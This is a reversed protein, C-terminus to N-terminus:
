TDPVYLLSFLEHRIRNARLKRLAKIEIQRIRERTLNHKQGVQELTKETGDRLGYRDSLIERDRERLISLMKHVADTRM